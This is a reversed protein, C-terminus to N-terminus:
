ASIIPSDRGRIYAIRTLLTACNSSESQPVMRLVTFKNHSNMRATQVIVADFPFTKSTTPRAVTTHKFFLISLVDYDTRVNQFSLVNQLLVPPIIRLDNLDSTALFSCPTWMIM